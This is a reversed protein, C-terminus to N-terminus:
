GNKRRLFGCIFDIRLGTGSLCRGFRTFCYNHVNMRSPLRPHRIISNVDDAAVSMELLRNEEIAGVVFRCNLRCLLADVSVIDLKPLSIAQDRPEISAGALGRTLGLRNEHDSTRGYNLAGCGNCSRDPYCCRMGGGDSGLHHAICQDHVSSPRSLPGVAVNWCISTIVGASMM